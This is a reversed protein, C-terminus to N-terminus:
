SAFQLSYYSNINVIIVRIESVNTDYFPNQM